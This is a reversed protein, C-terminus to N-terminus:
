QTFVQRFDLLKQSRIAYGLNIPINVHTIPEQKTPIDKIVIKGEATFQPAAYLIGLLYIRYGFAIGDRISYSGQNYILIPSGSSGPFCAMDVLFEPKGNYDIAPHSATSGTRIIPLNNKKDRLGIPYGIMKVEEIPTMEELISTSPVLKADFPNYFLKKGESEVKTVIPALPMACLDINTDPHCRWWKSFDDFMIIFDDLNPTKGDSTTHLHIVGRKANNVVHKNTILLPLIKNDEEIFNFFFGTGSGRVNQDYEVDIRTTTFLLQNTIEQWM